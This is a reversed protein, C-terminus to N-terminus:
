WSLVLRSGLRALMLLRCLSILTHSYGSMFLGWAVHVFLSFGRFYVVKPVVKDTLTTAQGPGRRSVVLGRHHERGFLLLVRLCLLVEEFHTVFIQSCRSLIADDPWGFAALLFVIENSSIDRGPLLYLLEGSLLSVLREFLLHRYVEDVLEM